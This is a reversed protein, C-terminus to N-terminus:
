RSEETHTCCQLKPMMDRTRLLLMSSPLDQSPFSRPPVPEKGMCLVVAQPSSISIWDALKRICLIVEAGLNVWGSHRSLHSLPFPTKTPSSAPKRGNGGLLKEEVRARLVGLKPFPLVPTDDSPPVCVLSSAVLGRLGGSVKWEGCTVSRCDRCVSNQLATGHLACQPSCSSCCLARKCKHRSPAAWGLLKYETSPYRIYLIASVIVSRLRNIRGESGM